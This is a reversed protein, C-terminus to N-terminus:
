DVKLRRRHDFKQAVDELNSDDESLNLAFWEHCLAQKASLRERPDTQLLQLV